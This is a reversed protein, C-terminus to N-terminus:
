SQNPKNPVDAADAELVTVDHGDRVLMTSLCLGIMGGGCAVIKSM